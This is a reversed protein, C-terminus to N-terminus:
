RRPERRRTLIRRFETFGLERIEARSWSTQCSLDYVLDYM